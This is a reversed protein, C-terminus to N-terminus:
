SLDLKQLLFLQDSHIFAFSSRKQFSPYLLVHNPLLSSLDFHNKSSLTNPSIQDSHYLVGHVFVPILYLAVLFYFVAISVQNIVLLNFCCCLLCHCAPGPLAATPRRQLLFVPGPIPSPRAWGGSGAESVSCALRWVCKCECQRSVTGISSVQVSVACADFGCLCLLCLSPYM